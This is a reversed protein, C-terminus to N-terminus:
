NRGLADAIEADSLGAEALVTESHEGLRPQHRRIPLASRDFRLGPDLIELEGESPHDYRRFLNMAELQPDQRLEAFTNVPGCPIDAQRLLTLWESRSRRRMAEGAKQYLADINGTRNSLTAFRPDDAAEPMGALTWFARWHADTYALMCIHGDSAAYPRREPSIVRSYGPDGDPPAFVTGFQHELLTYASMCEFMGIEMYVGKGTRLRQFLAAMLGNAAILGSSKDAVV